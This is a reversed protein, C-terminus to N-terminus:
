EPFRQMLREMAVRTAWRFFIASYEAGALVMGLIFVLHSLGYAIPGGILAIWPSKLTISAVGLVSILPWCIVYSFAICFVGALIRLSPKKRFASLDARSDIAQRVYATRSLRRILHPMM